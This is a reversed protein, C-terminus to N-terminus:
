EQIISGIIVPEGGEIAAQGNNVIICNEIVPKCSPNGRGSGSLMKIGTQGNAIILCNLLHPNSQVSLEIGDTVNDMIRCNRITTNTTTGSIGISGARLTLGAIECAESNSSLSLVPKYTNGQIITGGIYYPDNPDVSQLRIDKNLTLSEQYFGPAVVIEDGPGAYYIAGQVTKFRMASTKNEVTGNPDPLPTTNLWIQPSADIATSGSLAHGVTFVDPKGDGNFDGVDLGWNCLNGLAPGTTLQGTGDNIWIRTTPRSQAMALDLDGDGDFDALGVGEGRQGSINTGAVLRGTGNNLYIRGSRNSDQLAMVLDLWGDGNLDGVALGHVHSEGEDLGQSLNFQGTGDNLWVHNPCPGGSNPPWRWGSTIADVSGDQNLDDLVIQALQGTGILGDGLKQGSDILQGFGDGWFLQSYFYWGNGQQYRMITLLDPNGDGNLDAITGRGMTKDTEQWSIDSTRSFRGTGDNLWVASDAIVDIAGDKNLDGWIMPDPFSQESKQFLGHGDGYYLATSSWYNVFADLKGDGNFDALKVQRGNGKELQQGTSDFSIQAQLLTVFSFLVIIVVMRKKM